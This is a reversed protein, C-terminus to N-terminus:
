MLDVYNYRMFTRYNFWSVDIMCERLQEQKIPDAKEGACFRQALLEFDSKSVIGDKDVDLRDFHTRIKRQWFESM